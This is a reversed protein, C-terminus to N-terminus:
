GVRSPTRPFSGGGRPPVIPHTAFLHERLGWTDAYRVHKIWGHVAADLEAFPIRGAQYADLHDALRRTFAISNRQKLLRHTPYLVPQAAALVLVDAPPDGADAPQPPQNRWLM